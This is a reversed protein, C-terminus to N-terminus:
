ASPPVSPKPVRLMWGALLAGLAAVLTGCNEYVHMPLVGVMLGLVGLGLFGRRALTREWAKTALATSFFYLVASGGVQVWPVLPRVPRWAVLELRDFFGYAGGPLALGSEGALQDATAGFLHMDDALLFYVAQVLTAVVLVTLMWGRPAPPVSPETHERLAELHEPSVELPHPYSMALLAQTAATSVPTGQEDVLQKVGEKALLAHLVPALTAPEETQAWRAIIANLYGAKLARSSGSARAAEEFLPELENLSPTVPSPQLQTSM